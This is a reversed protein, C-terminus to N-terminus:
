IILRYSNEMRNMSDAFMGLYGGISDGRTWICLDGSVVKRKMRGHHVLHCKRNFLPYDGISEGRIGVCM